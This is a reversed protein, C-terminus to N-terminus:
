FLCRVTCFCISWLFPPFASVFPAPISFLTQVQKLRSPSISLQSEVGDSVDQLKTSINVMLWLIGIM